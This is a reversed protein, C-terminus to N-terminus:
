IFDSTLHTGNDNWKNNNNKDRKIQKTELHSLHYM